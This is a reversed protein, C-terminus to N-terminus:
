VKARQPSPQKISPIEDSARGQGSGKAQGLQNNKIVAVANGNFATRIQGERFIDLGTHGSEAELSDGDFVTRVHISDAFSDFFCFGIFFMRRENGNLGLDTVAARSFLTRGISM